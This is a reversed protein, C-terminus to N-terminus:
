LFGRTPGVHGPGCGPFSLAPAISVPAQTCLTGPLEFSAARRAISNMAQGGCKRRRSSYRGLAYPSPAAFRVVGHGLPHLLDHCRERRLITVQEEVPIGAPTTVIWALAWLPPMAAPWWWAPRLGLGMGLATAPVWPV